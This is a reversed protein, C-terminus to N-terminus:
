EGKVVLQSDSYKKLIPELYDVKMSQDQEIFKDISSKEKLVFVLEKFEPKESQSLLQNTHMDFIDQVENRSYSVNCEYMVAWFDNIGKRKVFKPRLKCDPSLNLDIGIEEHIENKINEELDFISGKIDSADIGGGAFQLRDPTSTHQNMRGFAIYNDRTIIAACTYIVKCPFPTNPHNITYLYHKYDTKVVSINLESEKFDVNNITYVEGNTLSPNQQIKDEWFMSHKNTIEKPLILPKPDFEVILNQPISQIVIDSM